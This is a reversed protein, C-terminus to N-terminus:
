DPEHLKIWDSIDHWAGCHPCIWNSWYEGDDGDSAYDADMDDVTDVVGSCNPCKYTVISGSECM